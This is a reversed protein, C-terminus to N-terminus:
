PQIVELLEVYAPNFFIFITGGKDDIFKIVPRKEGLLYSHAILEVHEGTTTVVLYKIATAM